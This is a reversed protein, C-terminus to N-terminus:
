KRFLLLIEKTARMHVKPENEEVFRVLLIVKQNHKWHEIKLYSVLWKICQEVFGVCHGVVSEVVFIMM